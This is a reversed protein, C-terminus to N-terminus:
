CGLFQRRAGVWCRGHSQFLPEVTTSYATADGGPTHLLLYDPQGLAYDTVPRCEPSMLATVVGTSAYTAINESLPEVGRAEVM